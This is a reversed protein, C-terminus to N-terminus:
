EATDGGTKGDNAGKRMVKMIRERLEPNGQLSTAIETYRKKDMGDVESLIKEATLRLEKVLGQMMEKNGTERATRFDSAYEQRIESIRLAAESFAAVEQASVELAEPQVAAAPAQDSAGGSKEQAHALQPAATGLAVVAAMATTLLRKRM